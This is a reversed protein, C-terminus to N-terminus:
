KIFSKYALEPPKEGFYVANPDNYIDDNEYMRSWRMKNPRHLVGSYKSGM